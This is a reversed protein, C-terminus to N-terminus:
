YSGRGAPPYRDGGGRSAWLAMPPSSSRRGRQRLGSCVCDGREVTPSAERALSLSRCKMGLVRKLCFCWQQHATQRGSCPAFQDKLQMIPERENEHATDHRGRRVQSTCDDAFTSRIYGAPYFGWCLVLQCLKVSLRKCQMLM